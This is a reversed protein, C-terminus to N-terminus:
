QSPRIYARNIRLPASLIQGRLIPVWTQGNREQAAMRDVLEMGATVTGFVPYGAGDPSYAGGADYGPADALYIVLDPIVVGSDLVDRALSVSGRSHTLGTMATTELDTLVPLGSAAISTPTDSLVFTDLLGGEVLEVPTSAGTAAGARYFGHGAFAGADALQSVFATTKPARESHLAIVIEGRPTEIVLESPQAAPLTTCAACGLALAAALLSQLANRRRM